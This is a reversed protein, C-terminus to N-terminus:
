KDCIKDKLKNYCQLYNFFSYLYLYFTYLNKIIFM